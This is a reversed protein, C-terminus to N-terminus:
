SFDWPLNRVLLQEGLLEIVLVMRAGISGGMSCGNLFAALIFFPISTNITLIVAVMLHLLTWFIALTKINFHRSLYGFIPRAIAKIPNWVLLWLVRFWRTQPHFTVEHRSSKPVYTRSWIFKAVFHVEHCAHANFSVNVTVFMHWSTISWLRSTVSQESCTNTVFRNLDLFGQGEGAFGFMWMYANQTSTMGYQTTVNTLQTVKLLDCHTAVTQWGIVLIIQCLARTSNIIENLVVSHFCITQRSTFKLDLKTVWNIPTIIVSLNIVQTSLLLKLNSHSRLDPNNFM